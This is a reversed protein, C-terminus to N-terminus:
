NKIFTTPKKKSYLSLVLYIATNTLGKVLMKRIFIANYGGLLMINSKVFM